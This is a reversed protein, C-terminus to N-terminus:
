HGATLNVTRRHQPRLRDIRLLQQFSRSASWEVVGGFVVRKEM